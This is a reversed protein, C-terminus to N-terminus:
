YAAFHLSLGGQYFTAQTEIASNDNYKTKESGVTEM